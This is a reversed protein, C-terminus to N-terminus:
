RGLRGGGARRMTGDRRRGVGRRGDEVWLTENLAHPQAMTVDPSCPALHLHASVTSCLSSRVGRREMAFGAGSGTSTTIRIKGAGREEDRTGTHVCERGGGRIGGKRLVGLRAHAGTAGLAGRAIAMSDGLERRQVGWGEGSTERWRAATGATGGEGRGEGTYGWAGVAGAARSTVGAFVVECQGARRKPNTRAHRAHRTVHLSYLVAGQGEGERGPLGYFQFYAGAAPKKTVVLAVHARIWGPM